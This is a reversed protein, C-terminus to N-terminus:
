ALLQQESKSTTVHSVISCHVVLYLSLQQVFGGIGLVHGMEHTIVTLLSGDDFASAVDALDFDMVGSVPLNADVLVNSNSTRGSRRRIPTSQALTNGVGDIETVRCAALLLLLLLM